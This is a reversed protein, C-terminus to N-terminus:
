YLRGTRRFYTQARAVDRLIQSKLAEPSDFKREDRVRRLFSVGIRKPTDGTLPELLFTEITLAKGDFTPRYGVNTISKWKREDQLDRTRTTYVGTAPLVEANTALNLTPVTQKSGIGHGTVVEGELEYPRGLMRCATSVNGSELLKRVESSSVMRGRTKIGAIIETSFGYKEGLERLLQTDGSQRNGFRFNEGVLVAKANLKDVLIRKAFEEATLESFNRDFPIVTVLEIGAARMLESRQEVTSLLKPARAPAVVKTPHPDFTLVAPTWGHERAIEVVRELIRRHGIHVGDFNGITIATM